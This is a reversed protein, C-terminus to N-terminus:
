IQRTFRRIESRATEVMFLPKYRVRLLRYQRSCNNLTPSLNTFCISYFKRIHRSRALSFVYKSIDLEISSTPSSTISQTTCITWVYTSTFVHCLTHITQAPVMDLYTLEMDKNFTSWTYYYNSTSLRLGPLPIDTGLMRRYQPLEPRTRLLASTLVNAM